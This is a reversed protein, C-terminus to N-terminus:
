IWVHDSGIGALRLGQGIVLALLSGSQAGMRIGIEQKRQTVSYSIV